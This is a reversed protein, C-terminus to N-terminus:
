RRSGSGAADCRAPSCERRRRTGEGDLFVEAGGLEEAFAKTHHNAVAGLSFSDDQTGIASLFVVQTVKGQVVRLLLELGSRGFRVLLLCLVVVGVEFEEKAGSGVEFTLDHGPAGPELDEFGFPQCVFDTLPVLIGDLFVLFFLLKEFFISFKGFMYRSKSCGVGFKADRNLFITM